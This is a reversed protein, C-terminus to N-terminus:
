MSPEDEEPFMEYERLERGFDDVNSPQYDEETSLWGSRHYAEQLEFWEELARESDYKDESFPLKGEALLKFTAMNEELITKMHNEVGYVGIKVQLLCSPMAHEFRLEVRTQDPAIEEFEVIGGLPMGITSRFKIFANEKIETKQLYM